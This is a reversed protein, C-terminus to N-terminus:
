GGTFDTLPIALQQSNAPQQTNAPPPPNPPAPTTFAQEPAPTEKKRETAFKARQLTMTGLDLFEDPKVEIEKEIPV